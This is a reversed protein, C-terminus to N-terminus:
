TIFASPLPWVAMVVLGALSSPGSQAGSPCCMTKALSRVPLLSTNMMSASPSLWVWNVVSGESSKPADQDGSPARM